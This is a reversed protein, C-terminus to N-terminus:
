YDCKEEFGDEDGDDINFQFGKLRQPEYVKMQQLKWTIGFMKNMFYVSNLEVIAAGSHKSYLGHDANCTIDQENVDFIRPKLFGSANTDVKVRFKPEFNGNSKINSNFMGECLKSGIEGQMAHDIIRREIAKLFDYFKKVYNNEEDWGKMSFDVNWKTPGVEPTFGSVGFPTYMRPIQFRVPKKTGTMCLTIKRNSYEGIEIDTNVNIDTFRM